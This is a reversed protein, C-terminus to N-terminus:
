LVLSFIYLCLNKLILSKYFWKTFIIGADITWDCDTKTGSSCDWIYCVRNTQTDQNNINCLFKDTITIEQLIEVDDYLWHGINYTQEEVPTQSLNFDISEEDDAKITIKKYDVGYPHIILQKSFWVQNIATPNITGSEEPQVITLKNKNDIKKVTFVASVKAYDKTEAQNVVITQSTDSAKIATVSFQNDDINSADLYETSM